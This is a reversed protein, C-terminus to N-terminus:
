KRDAGQPCRVHQRPGIPGRVSDDEVGRVGGGQKLHGSCVCSRMCVFILNMHLESQDSVYQHLYDQLFMM